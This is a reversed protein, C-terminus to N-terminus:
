ENREYREHKIWDIKLYENILSDFKNMSEIDFTDVYNYTKQFEEKFLDEWFTGRKNVGDKEQEKLAVCFCVYKLVDTKTEERTADIYARLTDTLYNLSLKGYYERILSLTDIVVM